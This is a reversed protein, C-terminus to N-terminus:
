PDNVRDDSQNQEVNGHAPSMSDALTTNFDMEMMMWRCDNGVNDPLWLLPAEVAFSNTRHPLMSGSSDQAQVYNQDYIQQFGVENAGLFSMDNVEAAQTNPPCFQLPQATSAAPQSTQVTGTDLQTVSQRTNHQEKAARKGGKHLLQEIIEICRANSPTSKSNRLIELNFSLRASAGEEDNHEKLDLINITSAVFITYSEMYNIVRFGFRRIHLMFLRDIMEAAATAM